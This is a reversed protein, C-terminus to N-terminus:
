SSSSAGEDLTRKVAENAANMAVHGLLAGHVFPTFYTVLEERAAEDGARVGDVWEVWM